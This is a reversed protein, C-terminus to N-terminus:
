EEIRYVRIYDVLMQVRGSKFMSDDIGQQGGWHGGIALNLLMFFEQGPITREYPWDKPAKANLESKQFSDKKILKNGVMRQNVRKGDVFFEIKEPTWDVRYVHFNKELPENLDLIHGMYISKNPLPWPAGTPDKHLTSHVRNMGRSPEFGVVEMIDIEGAEPWKLGPAIGVMWLAPWSGRATPIKARIEYRGFSMDRLVPGANRKRTRIAGSTYDYIKGKVGPIDCAFKEKRAELILHGDKVYVNEKRENSYCQSENNRVYDTDYDWLEPDPFGDVDFEESWILESQPQSSPHRENLSTCANLLIILLLLLFKM